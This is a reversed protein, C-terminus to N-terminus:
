KILRKYKSNCNSWIKYMVYTKDNDESEDDKFVNKLYGELEKVGSCNECQKMMCQRNEISCVVKRNIEHLWNQKVPLLSTMLEVNQHIECVNSACSDAATVVWKPRLNFFKSM